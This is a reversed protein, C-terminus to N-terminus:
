SHVVPTDGSSHATRDALTRGITPLAGLIVVSLSLAALLQQPMWAGVALMACTSLIVAAVGITPVVILTTSRPMRIWSRVIAGPGVLVVAAVLLAQLVGPLIQLSALVGAAGGVLAVREWTPIASVVRRTGAIAVSGGSGLATRVRLASRRADAAASASVARLSRRTNLGRGGRALQKSILGEGAIRQLLYLLPGLLVSLLEIRGVRSLVPVLSADVTSTDAARANGVLQRVAHPSRRLAMAAIRPQLAIKTLWSGLGTGYGRAQATLADLDARHRHWVIADPEVSLSRGSLIVRTFIDLDEGGGTRSGVGFATDFGGLALARDRRLAFNAGTGFQGVSFPFMPLDEPPTDLSFVRQDLNGSWSVKSDFYHQVPTRLEGSPVLGTVCDVATGRAFGRALAALWGSDVSVDDDTFAVFEGTAALLGTNRAYSLGPTPESVLRVRPDSFEAAILDAVATTSPANDVVVVTFDIYDLDLVSTLATRLQEARDRTCIVVTFSPSETAPEGDVAFPLRAVRSRVLALDITGGSIPVEVFGRVHSGARILLRARSYGAAGILRRKEKLAAGLADEDDLEGIWTAGDWDVDGGYTM